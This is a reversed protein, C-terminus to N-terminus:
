PGTTNWTGLTQWGSNLGGDDAAYGYVNKVGAFPVTFSVALDLSLTDVSGSVSSSGANVSCQGNSLTGAVGPTVPGTIASGSDNYLYLHNTSQQYELKCGNVSSLTANLLMYTTKLYGYGNVSSFKFTFSGSTGTGSNPTVSVATPAVPSAATWTGLTQWGSNLGGDDAAYGYVNKVGVFPVIFTVAVDLSLTDVSGSVSSSGANVSCQSNSLTGAVGPTVPGTLAAGSNTYLYLHNTSQQYELKCGNVSSLTANFLMYMTKLYGYGNVSSFKFTFSQSMGTGSSPTVSVATPAVPLAATWTGLTQWGSNVGENDAAYGYVNKVGVFPPVIFSVALDLSLTNGSGGVSSSGANVSCQSNSLTGAVGPTVPGTTASGSDTYLYLRNTSQSYQLKCGNVSSLTANFLMYTTKLYGYGNPSSFKFTFSQSTGTGSSPTVSVATPPGLSTTNTLSFTQTLSTGAVTAKVTFGGATGNATLVPATATGDAGTTVPQTPTSAFTGSAGGGGAVIAFTVKAGPFPASNQDLVKVELNTSYPADVVASQGDGATKNLTTAVPTTPTNLQIAGVAFDACSGQCATLSFVVSTINAATSDKLGIYVADGAVDSLATFTGLSAAGNFAQISATFQGPADAQILAGAGAVGKGFTLTLPGNGGVAGDTTWLAESGAPLGTGTWSCNTASPPAASCVVSAVSGSAALGVTASPGATSTVGFSASLQTQDAGLQGWGITSDAQQASLSSVQVVSDAQAATAALLLLGVVSSLQSCRILKSM